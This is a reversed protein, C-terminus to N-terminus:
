PNTEISDALQYEGDSGIVTLFVEDSGQNDGPGYQLRLGDIDIATSDSLVDLFCDRSVDPGCAELRAIALRGALYGELSIFGPEAEPDYAALADRYNAVVSNSEDSPLPAVQTVYVGEGADGLEDALANSGVFSVTMFITDTGLKMRLKEIARAAPRYAGIIIVAEPDAEAIRFAASQVAETNRRYYWSAVLEMDERDQLANNVGTLGDIGYSDNQYLVAVRAIGAEALLDVMKMTEQHYSARLNLVNTLEGDRLLQAGTFPAIFPVGAASALPSAARSTPTGVAGILGFVRDIEILRLTNAFASDTEYRDDLATLTLQRGHVGGADNAEHFAAEIGLKMGEGLAASPGSFAASQGFKIERDSIGPDTMDEEPMTPIPSVAFGQVEASLADIQDLLRTLTQANEEILANEEVVLELRNVLRDFYDDEGGGADRVNAALDLINPDLQDSPNERLYRIDRDVSGAVSDYAEQIRAVFSPGQMLSAVLLLTHGLVANSSLSNTHTYRLIDDGSLSGSGSPESNTMLQYFQSDVNATAAPFLMTTNSRTLNVRSDNELKLARLLAPRGRQIEDVNSELEDVLTKIHAVREEPGRGDLIELHEALAAKHDSLTMRDAALSASTMDGRTPVSGVAVLASARRTIALAASQLQVVDYVDVRGDDGALTLSVWNSWSPETSSESQSGVAFLYNTGPTLNNFTLTYAAAGNDEIVIYEIANQWPGDAQYVIVAADGNLWGITYDSAGSVADWSVVAEGLDDGDAVQVNAPAPLDEQAQAANDLVLWGGAAALIAAAIVAVTLLLKSQTKM